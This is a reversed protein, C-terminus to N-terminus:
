NLRILIRTLVPVDNDQLLLVAQVKNQNDRVALTDTRIPFDIAVDFKGYVRSSRWEKVM